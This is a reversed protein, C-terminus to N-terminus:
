TTYKQAHSFSAVSGKSKYLGDNLNPEDQLEPTQISNKIIALEQRAYQYQEDKDLFRMVYNDFFKNLKEKSNDQHYKAIIEQDSYIKPKIDLPYKNEDPAGIETTKDDLRCSSYFFNGTKNFKVMQEIHSKNMNVILKWINSNSETPVNQPNRCLYGGVCEYIASNESGSNPINKNYQSNQFIVKTGFKYNNMDVGYPYDYHPLHNIKLSCPSNKSFYRTLIKKQEETLPISPRLPTTLNNLIIENPSHNIFKAGVKTIYQIKPLREQTDLFAIQPKPDDDNYNSEKWHLVFVYVSEFDQEAWGDSQSDSAYNNFIHARKILEGAKSNYLTNQFSKFGKLNYGESPIDSLTSNNILWEAMNVIEHHEWSFLITKNHFEKNYEIFALPNYM